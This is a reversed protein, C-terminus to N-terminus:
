HNLILVIVVLVVVPILIAAFTIAFMRVQRPHAFNITSGLGHNKPVIERPDDANSYVYAHWHKRDTPDNPRLVQLQEQQEDLHRLTNQDESM